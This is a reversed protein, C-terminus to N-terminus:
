FFRNADKLIPAIFNAAWANDSNSFFALANEASFPMEFAEDDWGIFCSAFLKLNDEQKQESAEFAEFATHFQKSHPGVLDVFIGTEGQTPHVLEVKIPKAALQTIKFKAKM